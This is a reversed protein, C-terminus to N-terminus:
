GILNNGNPLQFQRTTCLSCFFRNSSESYNLNLDINEPMLVAEGGVYVTEPSFSSIFLDQTLLQQPV